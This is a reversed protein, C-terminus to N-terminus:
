NKKGNKNLGLFHVETSLIDWQLYSHFKTEAWNQHSIYYASLSKVYGM